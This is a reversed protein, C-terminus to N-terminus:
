CKQLAQFFFLRRERRGWLDGYHCWVHEGHPNIIELDESIKKSTKEKKEHSIDVEEAVM